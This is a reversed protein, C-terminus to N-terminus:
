EPSQKYIREPNGFLTLNNRSEAKTHIEHRYKKIKDGDRIFTSNVSSTRPMEERRSLSAKVGFLCGFFGNFHEAAAASGCVDDHGFVSEAAERAGCFSCISNEQEHTLL